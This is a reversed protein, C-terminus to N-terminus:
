PLVSSRLHSFQTKKRGTLISVPTARRSRPGCSVSGHTKICHYCYMTTKMQKSYEMRYRLSNDVSLQATGHRRTSCSQLLQLKISGIMTPVNLLTLQLLSSCILQQTYLKRGCQHDGDLGKIVLVLMSVVGHDPNAETSRGTVM